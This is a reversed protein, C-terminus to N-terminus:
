QLFTGLLVGIVVLFIILLILPLFITQLSAIFIAVIDAGELEIQNKEEGYEHWDYDENTNDETM